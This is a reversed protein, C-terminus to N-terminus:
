QASSFDTPYLIKDFLSDFLVRCYHEGDREAIEFKAIIVPRDAKVAVEEAVDGLLKASLWDKGKGGLYILSVDEERAIRIIEDGPIGYSVLTKVNFHNRLANAEEKIKKEAEKKFGEVMRDINEVVDQWATSRIISFLSSDVVYLMVVEKAGLTSLDKVFEMSKRAYESFDTPVLVKEFM